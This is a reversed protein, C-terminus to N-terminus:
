QCLSSPMTSVHLLHHALGDGKAAQCRGLDELHGNFTSNLLSLAPPSGSTMLPKFLLVIVCMENTCVDVCWKTVLKDELRESDNQSAELM